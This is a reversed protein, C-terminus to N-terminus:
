WNVRAACGDQAVPQRFSVCRAFRSGIRLDVESATQPSEREIYDFIEDRDRLAGETWRLHM